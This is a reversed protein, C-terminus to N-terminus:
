STKSLEFLKAEKLLAYYASLHSFIFGRLGSFCYRYILYNRIFELPYILLLKLISPQKGKQYKEAAKLSSYKNYKDTLQTIDAYGYHNFYKSTNKLKGNIRPGEHVLNDIHYQVFQKKFLRTNTPLRTLKSFFKGIFLDNRRCKLAVYHHQESTFRKIEEIFAKTLEEDADLNLVWEHQCLGMAYHKQRAYGPWDNHIVKAGKSKAISITNDTSGSDVVIIEAFDQCSDLVRGIHREENQVIIFVSVSIKNM